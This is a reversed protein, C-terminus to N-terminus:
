LSTSTAMSKSKYGYGKFSLFANLGINYKKCFEISLSNAWSSAICEKIPLMDARTNDVFFKKAFEVVFRGRSFISKALGAHVGIEQLVRQYSRAVKGVVM